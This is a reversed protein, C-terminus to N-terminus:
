GMNRRFKQEPYLVIYSVENFHRSLHRPVKNMLPNFSITHPRALISVFLDNKGVEKALILFDEWDAFTNYTIDITSKQNKFHSEFAKLSSEQGYILLKAGAEKAFQVLTQLYNPYGAEHEANKPVVALIRQITNVPICFKCFLVQISTNRIVKDIVSGFVREETTIKGNWGMLVETIRLEKIARLIGNGINVDVRYVPSNDAKESAFDKLANEMKRHFLAMKEEVDREEKVVFLPYIPEPSYPKKVMLAFDILRNINDPNSVPVLIRQESEPNAAIQSESQIAIKRGAKEAIISSILCSVLILLITGNLVREDLLKINFGIIIVAITAAAHSSSMGWILRREDRSYNYIKQTVFAAIWKGLFSIVIILLAILLTSPDKFLIRVDVLMGVSILFFPIFLTNGVFNIRNMLPSTHPILQNIALGALFAGIIPEVGVVHSLFGSIFVISLVYLYQSNGETELNKFFWSTLRPVGWLILFVLLSLLVIFKGWFMITMNDKQLNTIMALIILVAADTIITGGITITVARNQTIGLKSIIPYTILTHTSFMSALLLSAMPSYGLIYYSAFYGIILPAFFTLAGFVISKNKNKKFDNMDIELGAQFMLYLLGVTGFLEISNDRELVHFGKPGLAVGALILGVVGPIGFRNFLLPTFLIVLLVVSFVLVPEKFPLGLEILYVM